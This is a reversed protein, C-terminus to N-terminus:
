DYNAFSIHQLFSMCDLVLCSYHEWLKSSQTLWLMMLPLSKSKVLNDFIDSIVVENIITSHHTFVYVIFCKPSKALVCKAVQEETFVDKVPLQFRLIQM